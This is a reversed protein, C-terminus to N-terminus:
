GRWPSKEQEEDQTFSDNNAKAKLIGDYCKLIKKQDM